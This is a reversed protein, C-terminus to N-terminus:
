DAAPKADGPSLKPNIVRFEESEIVVPVTRLPNLKYEVRFRVKYKDTAAQAPIAIGAQSNVCGKKSNDNPWPILIETRSSVLSARVTGVSDTTKCFDLLLVLVADAQVEHPRVPVPYRNFNLIDRSQNLWYVATLTAVAIVALSGYAAIKLGRSRM